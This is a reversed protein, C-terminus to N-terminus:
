GFQPRIVTARARRKPDPSSTSQLRGKLGEVTKRLADRAESSNAMESLGSQTKRSGATKPTAPPNFGSDPAKPSARCKEIMRKIAAVTTFDKGAIRIIELNGRGAERRLSKVSISGDPFEMAAAVDLRLPTDPSIREREPMHVSRGM